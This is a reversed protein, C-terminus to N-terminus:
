LKITRYKRLKQKQVLDVTQQLDASPTEENITKVQEKTIDTQKIMEISKELSLDNTRILREQLPPDNTNLVVQDRIISSELQKYECTAARMELNTMYNEISQGVQRKYKLFVHREYMINMKGCYRDFAEHFFSKISVSNIIKKFRLKRLYTTYM